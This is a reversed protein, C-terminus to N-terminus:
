SLSYRLFDELPEDESRPEFVKTKKEVFTKPKEALASKLFTELDEEVKVSPTERIYKIYKKGETTNPNNPPAKLM